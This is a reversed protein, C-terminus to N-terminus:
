GDAMNQIIETETAIKKIKGKNDTFYIINYRKTDMKKAIDKYSETESAIIHRLKNKKKKETFMLKKVFDVDYKEKQTFLNGIILTSFIIMSFNFKTKYLVYVGMAMICVGTIATLLKSAREARNRDFINAIVKKLIIGGDLPMAPLMNMLFLTINSVYFYHLNNNPYYRYIMIAAFAFVANSLPGSFYLIIEDALSYVMKNKLQLNVGFPYFTIHSVKLGICVASLTHALEHITMVAYTVCLIGTSHTLSAIIFLLVTLINIRIYKTIKIM